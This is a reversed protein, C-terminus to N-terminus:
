SLLRQLEIAAAKADCSDCDGANCNADHTHGNLMRLALGRIKACGEPEIRKVVIEAVSGMYPGGLCQAAIGRAADENDANVIGCDCIRERGKNWAIWQWIM